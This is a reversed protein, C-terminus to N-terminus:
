TIPLRGGLRVVVAVPEEFRIIGIDNIGSTFIAIFQCDPMALKFLLKKLRPGAAM